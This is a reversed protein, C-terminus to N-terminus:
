SLRYAIHLIQVPRTLLSYAPSTLRSLTAIASTSTCSLSRRITYHLRNSTARPGLMPLYGGDKLHLSNLLSFCSETIVAIGRRAHTRTLLLTNAFCTAYLHRCLPLGPALSITSISYHSDERFTAHDASSFAVYM